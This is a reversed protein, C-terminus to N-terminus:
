TTEKRITESIAASRAANLFGARDNTAQKSPKPTM